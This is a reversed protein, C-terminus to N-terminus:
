EGIELQYTDDDYAQWFAMDMLKMSPYEIGCKGLEKRLPEFVEANNCYFEAISRISNRNYQGSSVHYRRVAKKYRRDYAPVCGFVGLLIKTVLTESANNVDKSSAPLEVAYRKRIRESIEDILDLNEEQLLDQASIAYLSNYREEQLIRIVPIHVRYNKQFLFASGRYMGWSALYFALHLALYDVTKEDIMNRNESFAKYCHIWSRYRSHEDCLTNEHYEMILSAVEEASIAAVHPVHIIKHKVNNDSSSDSCKSDLKRFVISNEALNLQEARYGADLWAVAIPHSYNNSWLAPYKYASEPLASDIIKEIESFSLHLVEKGSTFLFDQLPQYKKEKKSM